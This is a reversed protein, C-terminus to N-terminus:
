TIVTLNQCNQPDEQSMECPYNDEQFKSTSLACQQLSCSGKSSKGRTRLHNYESNNNLKHTIIGPSQMPSLTMQTLPLAEEKSFALFLFNDLYITLFAVVPKLLKTFVRLASSLGFPLGLFTYHNTGWIFRLVRQSFEHIPVSFYAEKQDTSTTYDGKRFLPKLCHLWEM